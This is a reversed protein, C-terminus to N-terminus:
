DYRILYEDTKTRRWSKRGGSPQDFEGFVTTFLQAFDILVFGVEEIQRERERQKEEQVDSQSYAAPTWCCSRYIQTRYLCKNRM